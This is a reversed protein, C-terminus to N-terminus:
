DGVAAVAEEPDKTVEKGGRVGPHGLGGKESCELSVLKM